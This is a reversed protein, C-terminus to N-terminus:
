QYKNFLILEATRFYMIEKEQVTDILNLLGEDYKTSRPVSLFLINKAALFTFVNKLM